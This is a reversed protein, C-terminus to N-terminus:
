AKIEAEERNRMPFPGACGHMYRYSTLQYMNNRMHDTCDTNSNDAQDAVSIFVTRGSTEHIVITM